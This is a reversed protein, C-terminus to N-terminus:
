GSILPLVIRGRLMRVEPHRHAGIGLLREGPCLRHHEERQRRAITELGVEARPPVHKTGTRIQNIQNVRMRRPFVAAVRNLEVDDKWSRANMPNPHLKLAQTDHIGGREAYRHSRNSWFNSRSRLSSLLRQEPRFNSRIRSWLRETGAASTGMYGCCHNRVAM